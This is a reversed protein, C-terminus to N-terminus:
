WRDRRRRPILVPIVLGLLLGVALVSGGYIFWRIIIGRKESDLMAELDKNKNKIIDLQRSLQSNQELLESSQKEAQQTRRQMENTRQQWDHNIRNLKLTLEDIQKQLAPVQEKSSAASSLESSLIWGERNRSDRIQTYKDKKELVTVAEGSKITGVIKFQDGAGKRLYTNLNESVYQTQAFACQSIILTSFIGLLRSFNKM